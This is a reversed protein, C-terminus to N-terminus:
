RKRNKNLIFQDDGFACVTLLFGEELLALLRRRTTDVPEANKRLALIETFGYALDPEDLFIKRVGCKEPNDFEERTIPM